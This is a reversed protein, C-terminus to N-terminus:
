EINTTAYKNGILAFNTLNHQFYGGKGQSGVAHWITQQDQDVIAQASYISDLGSMTIHFNETMTGLTSNFTAKIFHFLGNSSDRSHYFVENSSIAIM